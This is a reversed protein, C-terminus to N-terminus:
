FITLALVLVGVIGMVIGSGLTVWYQVPTFQGSVQPQGTKNSRVSAALVPAYELTM